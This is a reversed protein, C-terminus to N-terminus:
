ENEKLQCSLYIKHKDLTEWFKLRLQQMAKWDEEDHETTEVEGVVNLCIFIQNLIERYHHRKSRVAILLCDYLRDCDHSCWRNDIFVYSLRYSLESALNVSAREISRKELM